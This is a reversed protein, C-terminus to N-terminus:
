HVIIIEGASDIIKRAFEASNVSGVLDKCGFFFKFFPDGCFFIVTLKVM